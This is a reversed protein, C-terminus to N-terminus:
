MDTDPWVIGKLGNVEMMTALAGSIDFKRQWSKDSPLVKFIYENPKKKQEQLQFYQGLFRFEYRGERTFSMKSPTFVEKLADAVDHESGEM